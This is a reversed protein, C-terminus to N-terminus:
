SSTIAAGARAAAGIRSTAAVSGPKPRVGVRGVQAHLVVGPESTLERGVEAGVGHRAAADAAVDRDLHGGGPLKDPGRTSSDGENERSSSNLSSALSSRMPRTGPTPWSAQTSAMFAMGLDIFSLRGALRRSASIATIALLEGPKQRRSTRLYKSYRSWWPDTAKRSHLLGAHLGADHEALVVLDAERVLLTAVQLRARADGHGRDGVGPM